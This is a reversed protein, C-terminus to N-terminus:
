PRSSRSSARAPAAARHAGPETTYTVVLKPWGAVEGPRSMPADTVAAGRDPRLPRHRRAAHRGLPRRPGPRGAARRPDRAAIPADSAPGCRTPDTSPPTPRCTACRSSCRGASPAHPHRPDRRGRGPGRARGSRARAVLAAELRHALLSSTGTQHALSTIARHEISSTWIHRAASFCGSAPPRRGRRGARRAPRVPPPHGRRRARRPQRRALLHDADGVDLETALRRMTLAAAGDREVLDLAAAVVDDRDLGTRRGSRVTPGQDSATATRAM